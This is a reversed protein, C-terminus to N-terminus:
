RVFSKNSKGQTKANVTCIVLEECIYELQVGIPLTLIGREADWSVGYFEALKHMMTLADYEQPDLTIQRM